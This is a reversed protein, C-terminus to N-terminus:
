RREQERKKFMREIDAKVLECIEPSFYWEVKGSVSAFRGKWEPHFLGHYKAMVEVVEKEFIREAQRDTLETM